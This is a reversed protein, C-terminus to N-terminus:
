KYSSKETWIRSPICHRLIRCLVFSTSSLFGQTYHPGEMLEDLSLVTFYILSRQHQGYLTLDLFVSTTNESAATRVLINSMFTTVSTLIYFGPM